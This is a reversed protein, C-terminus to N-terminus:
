RRLDLDRFKPTRKERAATMAEPLDQTHIYAANWVGMYDLAEDVTHDRTYNMMVKSGYVALPSKAAITRAIGMVHALMQEHTDFVANVLGAGLAEDAGLNRGTYALERMLGAPILHPLRQLTGVDAVMGIDIEKIVFFADRTCWRMDCAAVMDVGGGICGGQVAALVPVRSKELATFSGQLEVLTRHFRERDRAADGSTEMFNGFMSLDIGATFHPGTSSLVAVRVEGRRRGIEEVFLERLEQWFAAVMANRKEPRNLRIHAIGDQLEFDFTTWAM